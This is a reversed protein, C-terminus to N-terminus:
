QGGHELYTLISGVETLMRSLKAVRASAERNHPITDAIVLFYQVSDRLIGHWRRYDDITGEIKPTNTEPMMSAM